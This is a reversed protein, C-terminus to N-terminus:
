KRINASHVQEMTSERRPFFRQLLEILKEWTYRKFKDKQKPVKRDLRQEM